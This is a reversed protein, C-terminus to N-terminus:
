KSSSQLIIDIKQRVTDQTLTQHLGGHLPRPTNNLDCWAWGVHEHNLTPVFERDVVHFFTHYQFRGDPSTYCEIPYIKGDYWWGIEEQCERALAGILTEGREVKGGPLCWGGDRHGRLLYLSRGTNDAWLLVGVGNILKRREGTM